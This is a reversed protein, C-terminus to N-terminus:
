IRRDYGKSRCGSNSPRSRTLVRLSSVSRKTHNGKVNFIVVNGALFSASAYHDKIDKPTRWRSPEADAIWGEIWTRANAKTVKILQGRDGRLDCVVDSKGEKLEAAVADLLGQTYYVSFDTLEIQLTLRDQASRGKAYRPTAEVFSIDHFRVQGKDVARKDFVEPPIQRPLLDIGKQKAEDLVEAAPFWRHDPLLVAYPSKPLEPHLAM